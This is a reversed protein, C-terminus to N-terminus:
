ANELATEVAISACINEKFHYGFHGGLFHEHETETNKGAVPTQNAKELNIDIRDEKLLM